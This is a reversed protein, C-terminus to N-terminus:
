NPYIIKEVEKEFEIENKCNKWLENIQPFKVLHLHEKPVPDLTMIAADGIPFNLDYWWKNKLGKTDILICKGILWQKGVEYSNCAFVAPPYDLMPNNWSKSHSMSMPQLGSNLVSESEKTWHFIFRNPKVRKTNIDKIIILWCIQMKPPLEKSERSSFMVGINFLKDKWSKLVKKLKLIDDERLLSITLVISDNLKNELSIEVDPNIQLIDEKIDRIYSTMLKKNGVLENIQTFSKLFKM